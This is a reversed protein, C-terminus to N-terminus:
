YSVEEGDPILELDMEAIENKDTETLVYDEGKLDASSTGSASTITLETGKWSHSVSIGNEGPEGDKGPQGPEGKLSDLWEKETGKFGENVAVQYASDGDEGKAGIQVKEAIADEIETIEEDTFYDIGKVPTNGPEGDKGPEGKYYDVGLGLEGQIVNEEQIVGKLDIM